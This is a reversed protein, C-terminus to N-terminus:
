RGSVSKGPISQSGYNRSEHFREVIVSSNIGGFAFSNSMAYEIEADIRHPGVFHLTDDIPTELNLTPHCYGGNMQLVTAVLEITGAATLTHGILSKTSNVYVSDLSGAFVHKLASCEASDGLASSTGHANVYQISSAAIGADRLANKMARIEGCIDPNASSNADLVISSGSIKGLIAAGREEATDVSELVMCASGQGYVFGAHQVDFPRSARQPQDQFREANLAGIAAFAHFELPSLHCLAGICMCADAQGLRVLSCGQIVALNGSASAGGVNLGIGKIGLVESVAALVSTDLSSLAYRPDIYEPQAVYKQFNEFSYAPHLNNGGIVLAIAAPELATLGAAGFAEAAACVGARVPLPANRLVRRARVCVGEGAGSRALVAAADFDKLEAGIAVPLDRQFTSLRTVGSCGNRLALDFATVNDGISTVVGMGTIVVQRSNSSAM